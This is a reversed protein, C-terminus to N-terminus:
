GDAYRRSRFCCSINEEHRRSGTKTKASDVPLVIPIVHLTFGAMGLQM